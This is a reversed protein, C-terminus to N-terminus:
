GKKVKERKAIMYEQMIKRIGDVQSTAVKWGLSKLKANELIIGPVRTVAKNSSYIIKASYDFEKKAIEVMLEAIEDIALFNGLETNSSINYVQGTEGSECITFLGSVVDEIYINDRRAMGSNNIVINENAAIKNLFSFFATEPKYVATGYIYSPRAIVTNINYQKIYAQAIVEIMRKSESYSSNQESLSSAITTDKESVVIDKSTLNGYVTASSFLVMRGSEGSAIRQNRLLNFCNITGFINPYIVDLPTNAITKGAIPSAAHFIVDVIKGNLNFPQSVDQVIYSFRPSALHAAFGNILKQENHSLAIVYVGNMAMLEDVLHSGVLGTAGTILVTKGSFYSM